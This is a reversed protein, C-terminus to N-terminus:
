NRQHNISKIVKTPQHPSFLISNQFNTIRATLEDFVDNTFPTGGRFLLARYVKQSFLGSM